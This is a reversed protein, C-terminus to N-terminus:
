PAPPSRLFFEEEDVNFAESINGIIAGTFADRFQVFITQDKDEGDDLKFQKFGMGQVKIVTGGYTPGANPNYDQVFLDQFYTFTNEIDRFHM